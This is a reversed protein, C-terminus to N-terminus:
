KLTTGEGGFLTYRARAVSSAARGCFLIREQNEGWIEKIKAAENHLFFSVKTAAAAAAAITLYNGDNNRFSGSRGAM